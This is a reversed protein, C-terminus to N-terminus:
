DRWFSGPVNDQAWLLSEAMEQGLIHSCWPDHRLSFIFFSDMLGGSVIFLISCISCIYFRHLLDYDYYTWIHGRMNVGSEHGLPTRWRRRGKGDRSPQFLIGEAIWHWIKELIHMSTSLHWYSEHQNMNTWTPQHQNINSTKSGILSIPGVDGCSHITSLEASIDHFHTAPIICPWGCRHLINCYIAIYQSISFNLIYGVQMSLFKSWTKRWTGTARGGVGSYQSSGALPQVSGDLGSYQSSGAVPLGCHSCSREEKDQINLIAKDSFPSYMPIGLVM